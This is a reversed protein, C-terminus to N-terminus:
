ESLYIVSRPGRRAADRQSASRAIPTTTAACDAVGV